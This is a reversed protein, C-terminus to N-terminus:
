SSPSRCRAGAFPFVAECPSGWGSRWFGAAVALLGLGWAGAREKIRAGHFAALRGLAFGLFAYFLWPCPPYAFGPKGEIGVLFTGAPM